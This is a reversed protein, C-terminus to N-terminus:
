MEVLRAVETPTLVRDWYAGHALWGHYPFAPTLTGAGILCNSISLLGVWANVLVGAAGQQIGNYYAISEGGALSFTILYNVWEIPNDIVQRNISTVGNTHHYIESTNNVSSKTIWTRNTTDTYLAMMRRLAGDTWVGANAARGWIMMSGEDGDFADRLAVSYINVYDSTGDFFPAYGGGPAPTNAWDVGTATGNAASGLTGLNNATTGTTEILPFYVLPASDRM